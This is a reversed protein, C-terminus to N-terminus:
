SMVRRGNAAGRRLAVQGGRGSPCPAAAVVSLQVAVVSLQVAERLCQWPCQSLPVLEGDPFAGAARRRGPPKQECQEACSARPSHTEHNHKNVACGALPYHPEFWRALRSVYLPVASADNRGTYLRRPSGKGSTRIREQHRRVRISGQSSTPLRRLDRMSVMERQSMKTASAKFGPLQIVAHVGNSIQNLLLVM